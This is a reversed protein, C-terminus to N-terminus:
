LAIHLHQNIRTLNLAVLLSRAPEHVGDHVVPQGEVRGVQAHVRVQTEEDARRDLHGGVEHAPVGHVLPAAPPDEEEGHDGPADRADAADEDGDTLALYKTLIM